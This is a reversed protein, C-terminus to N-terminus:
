HRAAEASLAAVTCGRGLADRQRVSLYGKVLGAFSEAGAGEMTREWGQRNEEFARECAQAALDQKSKFSGYFGGHTLGAAQMLDAIGIGDLGHERFLQGAVDIIRNRDEEAEARSVKM